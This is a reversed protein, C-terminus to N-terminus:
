CRPERNASTRRPMGGIGTGGTPKVELWGYPRPARPM